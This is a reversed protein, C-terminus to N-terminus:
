KVIVKAGQNGGQDARPQLEDTQREQRGRGDDRRVQGPVRHLLPNGAGDIGGVDGIRTMYIDVLGTKINNSFLFSTQQSDKKLFPGESAAKFEVVKSDYALTVIAGYLGAVNGAAIEFRAEQGVQAPVQPPRIELVPTGAAAPAAGM